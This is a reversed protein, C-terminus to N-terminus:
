RSLTWLLRQMAGCLEGARITKANDAGYITALLNHMVGCLDLLKDRAQQLESLQEATAPERQVVPTM